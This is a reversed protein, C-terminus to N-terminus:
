RFNGAFPNKAAGMLRPKMLILMGLAKPPRTNSCQAGAETHGAQKKTESRESIDAKPRNRGRALPMFRGSAAM